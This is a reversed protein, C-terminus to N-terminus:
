KLNFVVVVAVFLIGTVIAYASLVLCYNRVRRIKEDKAKVKKDIRPWVMSRPIEVQLLNGTVKFEPSKKLKGKFGISIKGKAGEMHNFSLQDIKLDDSALGLLPLILLGFAFIRFM